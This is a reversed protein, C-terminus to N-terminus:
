YKLITAPNGYVTNGAKVRKIVVAGAGVVCKEEVVVHPLVVAGTWLTVQEGLKSFGGMFSYTNLHCFDEIRADHGVAAFRQFTIFNGITVDCSLSVYPAIICGTGLKVNKSISASKHILNIFRGGKALIIDVYHRKYGVDGLACIFVDDQRPSYNEVSDIIPPYGDFGDLATNKDDLFGVVDFETRYGISQLALCYVERGFGRAGIILLHKM